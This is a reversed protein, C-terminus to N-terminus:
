TADQNTHVSLHGKANCFVLVGNNSNKSLKSGFTQVHEKTEKNEYMEERVATKRAKREAKKKQKQKLLHCDFLVKVLQENRFVM